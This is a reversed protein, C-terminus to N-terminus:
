EDDHDDAPKAARDTWYKLAKQLARRVLGRLYDRDVGFQACIADKDQEELFLGCLIARDRPPLKELMELVATKIEKQRLLGEPGPYKAPVDIEDVDEHLHRLADRRFEHYVNDGIKSVFGGLAEPHRVGKGGRIIAIARMLTEQVLDDIQDAPIRRVGFKPRLLRNTFYGVFHEETARDQAEVRRLYDADFSFFEVPKISTPSWYVERESRVHKRQPVGPLACSGQPQSTEKRGPLAEETRELAGRL